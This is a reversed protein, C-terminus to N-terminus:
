LASAVLPVKSIVSPGYTSVLCNRPPNVTTSTGSSSAAVIHAPFAGKQVSDIAAGGSASVTLLVAGDDSRPTMLVLSLVAPTVKPQTVDAVAGGCGATAALALLPLAQRSSFMKTM